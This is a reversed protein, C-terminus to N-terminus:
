EWKVYFGIVCALAGLMSALSDKSCQNLSKDWHNGMWEFGGFLGLLIMTIGFIQIFRKM